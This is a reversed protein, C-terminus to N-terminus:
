GAVDLAAGAIMRAAQTNMVVATVVAITLKALHRAVVAGAMAM